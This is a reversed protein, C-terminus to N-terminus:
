KRFILGFHYQDAPIEKELRFGVQTALSILTEKTIRYEDPPGVGGSGKEWDIIILKGGPGLVRKAEKLIAMKNENQFLINALLVIDQSENALGSGGIIELNGRITQINRLGELGAKARITELSSDLIDVASIFGSGGVIKAMEITFYGSGSGFDAVRFGPKLGFQSVVVSPNMFGGKPLSVPGISAALQATEM